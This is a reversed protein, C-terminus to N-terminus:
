LSLTMSRQRPYRVATVSRRGPMVNGLITVVDMIGTDRLAEICHQINPKNAISILQEPGNPNTDWAQDRM